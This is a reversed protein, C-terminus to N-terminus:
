DEQTRRRVGADHTIRVRDTMSLKFSAILRVVARFGYGKLGAARVLTGITTTGILGATLREIVADDAPNPDRRVSQILEANFWDEPSINRETILNIRNAVAPSMQAAVLKHIRRINSSEVLEWPKCSVATKSDDDFVVLYDFTHTHWEGDDGLYKEKPYQDIVDKVGPWARTAFAAKKEAGSEFATVFNDAVFAGSGHGKAGLAVKRTGRSKVPPIWLRQPPGPPRLNPDTTLYQELSLAL